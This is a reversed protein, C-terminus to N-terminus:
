FFLLNTLLTLNQVYCPIIAGLLYFFKVAFCCCFADFTVCLFM